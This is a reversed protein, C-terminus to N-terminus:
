AHMAATWPRTKWACCLKKKIAPWFFENTKSWSLEQVAKFRFCNRRRSHDHRGGCPSCRYCPFSDNNCTKPALGACGPEHDLRRWRELELEAAEFFTRRNAIGTLHDCTRARLLSDSDQHKNSIDRVIFAYGRESVPLDQERSLPAIM